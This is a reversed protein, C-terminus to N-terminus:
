MYKLYNSPIQNKKKKKKPKREKKSLYINFNFFSNIKNQRSVYSLM